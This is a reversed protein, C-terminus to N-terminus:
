GELVVEILHPGQSRIAAELHRNFEEARTARTANVGMGEALKIWDLSPNDLGLLGESTSGSDGGTVRRLEGKLIRYDRNAFIVTVIDLGERAQTWLSQLTYMGAGDSQMAFVKRGPCAVAAGIAVPMGQGIAGGTINLWDHPRAEATWSEVDRSSTVGEDSIISHEPMLAALATWVKEPTIEGTPLATCTREYVAAPEDPAKLEAVLAELAAVGDEEPEALVHFRCGEPALRNPLGPYAFFSVPPKAGVLIMHATGALLAVAPKVPYPLREVIARGAGRQTRCNVRNGMIRAGTMRSIRGALHLGKELMTTGAMLVVTPEGKGLIEAVHRIKDQDVPVPKPIAPAPDSGGGERWTCDAPVILTAVHGPKRQAEGIATAVDISVGAVDRCRGVWASVAGAISEIDTTLPADLELHYTAHDGVINVMPSNARRANHLNALGNGLGPGLHLLTAAPKGAMRAYGDAAGTCVGEFLAPIPRLGDVKDMAAVVYMETTGPNTFCVEVGGDILARVLSEAGNM